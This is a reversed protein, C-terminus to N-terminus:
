FGVSVQLTFTRQLPYVTGNSSAQGADGIEVNDWCFLNNGVAQLTLHKVGLSNFFDNEWRYSVDVNKLRIYRGDALWFTSNRNNNGSSGYTMRPFRANPNETSPDGSYWAPTWRNEQNNVMTLVNGTEGGAFPYYGSGGLFYQVKSVGEFLVSMTWKNWRLEGAIGYQFEPTNSFSLPVIDDDDIKGDGNVDKYRIDGPRVEGYTHKPASLIETSDAFM